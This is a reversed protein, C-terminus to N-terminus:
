KYVQVIKGPGNKTKASIYTGEILWFTKVSCVVFLTSAMQRRASLLTVMEKLLSKVSYQIVNNVALINFTKHILPKTNTKIDHDCLLKKHKLKSNRLQVIQCATASTCTTHIPIHIAYWYLSLFDNFWLCILSLDNLECRILTRCRCM